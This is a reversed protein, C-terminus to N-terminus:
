MLVTFGAQEGNSNCSMQMYVVAQGVASALLLLTEATKRAAHQQVPRHFPWATATFTM